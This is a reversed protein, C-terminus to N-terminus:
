QILLRVLLRLNAWTWGQIHTRRALARRALAPMGRSQLNKIAQRAETSAFVEDPLSLLTSAIEDAPLVTMLNALGHFGFTLNADGSREASFRNALSESAFRINFRRELEAKYTRCIAIDEPHHDPFDDLALAQLLRASRLSFGGNGVRNSDHFQPWVAGVYDVELFDDTWSSPHTVFGDWQVILVHSTKVYAPLSKLIFSSYEAASRIEPIRVVQVHQAADAPPLWAESTMLLACGFSIHAKSRLLADYALNPLRTDVACITVQPLNLNQLRDDM